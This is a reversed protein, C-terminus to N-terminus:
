KVRSWQQGGCVMGGLVCGEVKLAQEGRLSVRGNYKQGDRANVISGTWVSGNPKMSILVPKGIMDSDKAWSVYGCYNSGCARIEVHASGDAIRWDGAPSAVASVGLNALIAVALALQKM